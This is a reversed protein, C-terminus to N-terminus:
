FCNTITPRPQPIIERGTPLQHDRFLGVINFAKKSVFHYLNERKQALCGRNPCRWIAEGTPRVLKVSCVPCHKPMFIAKESGNRLEPLTKIVSPIVDGAREVVVTDGIKVGLRKMEDANHLSARSITVGALLIPTLIAVPTIA